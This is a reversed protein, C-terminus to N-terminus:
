IEIPNLIKDLRYLMVLAYDTLYRPYINLDTFPNDNLQNFQQILRLVSNKLQNFFSINSDNMIYHINTSIYSYIIIIEEISHRGDEHMLERLQNIFTSTNNCQQNLYNLKHHIDILKNNVM